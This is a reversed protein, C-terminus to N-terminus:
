TGHVVDVVMYYRASEVKLSDNGMKWAREALGEVGVDESRGGEKAFGKCGTPCQIVEEGRGGM